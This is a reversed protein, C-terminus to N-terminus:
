YSFKTKILNGSDNLSGVFKNLQQKELEYMKLHMEARQLNGENTEIQFLKYLAGNILANYFIDQLTLHSDLAVSQAPIYFIELLGFAAVKPMLMFSQMSLPILTKIQNNRTATYNALSSQNLIKDDLFCQIFRLAGRPLNIINDGLEIKKSFYEIGQSFEYLLANQTQALEILILEDSFRKSDLDRLRERIGQVM